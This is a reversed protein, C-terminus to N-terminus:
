GVDNLGVTLEEIDASDPAPREVVPDATPQVVADDASSGDSPEPEGCASLGGVLVVAVM